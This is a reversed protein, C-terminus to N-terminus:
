GYYPDGWGGGGPPLPGTITAVFAREYALWEQWSGYAAPANSSRILDGGGHVCRLEEEALAKTGAPNVDAPEAPDKCARVINEKSM